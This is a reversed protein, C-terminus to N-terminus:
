KAEPILLIFNSGRSYDGKVRDEVWIEGKYIKIIQKVLSLGIGMGHVSRDESNIRKFIYIKRGDEIGIGNDLFEMKLYNKKNKYENSIKILIEINKNENHRIANILLNEFIDELLENGVIYFENFHKNIQININREQYYKKVLEITKKLSEIVEIKKLNKKISKLNQFNESM